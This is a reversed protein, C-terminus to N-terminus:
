APFLRPFNYSSSFFFLSFYILFGENSMIKIKKFPVLVNKRKNEM